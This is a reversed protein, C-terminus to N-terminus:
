KCQLVMIKCTKSSKHSKRVFDRNKTNLKQSASFRRKRTKLTEPAVPIWIIFPFICLWKKMSFLAYPLLGFLPSGRPGLHTPGRPWLVQGRPVWWLSARASGRRPSKICAKTRGLFNRGLKELDMRPRPPPSVGSERRPPILSQQEPTGSSPSIVTM